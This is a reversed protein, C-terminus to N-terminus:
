YKYMYRLTVLRIRENLLEVEKTKEDLATKTSNLEAELQEQKHLLLRRDEKSMQVITCYSYLCTM